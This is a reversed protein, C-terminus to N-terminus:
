GLGTTAIKADTQPFFSIVIKAFVQLMAIFVIKWRNNSFLQWERCLLNYNLFNNSFRGQLILIVGMVKRMGSMVGGRMM